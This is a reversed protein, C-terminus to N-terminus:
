RKLVFSYVKMSSREHGSERPGVRRGRERRSTTRTIASDNATGDIDDKEVDCPGTNPALRESVVAPLEYQGM